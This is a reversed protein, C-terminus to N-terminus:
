QPKVSVSQAIHNIFFILWGVCLLALLMAGLSLVAGAAGLLLAIVLPRVLFGGRLAYMLSRLMLPLSRRM